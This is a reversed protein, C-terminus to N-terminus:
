VSSCDFKLPLGTYDSLFGVRKLPTEKQKYFIAHNFSDLSNRDSSEEGKEIEDEAGNRGVKVKGRM